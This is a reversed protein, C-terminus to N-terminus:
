LFAEGRQSIMAVRSCDVIFYYTCLANVRTQHSDIFKLNHRATKLKEGIKLTM